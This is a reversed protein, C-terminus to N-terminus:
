FGHIDMQPKINFILNTLRCKDYAIFFREEYCDIENNERVRLWGQSTQTFTYISGIKLRNSYNVSMGICVIKQGFEFM